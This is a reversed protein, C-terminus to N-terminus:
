SQKANSFDLPTAPLSPSDDGGIVRIILNRFQLNQNQNTKMYEADEKSLSQRLMFHDRWGHKLNRPVKYPSLTIELKGRLPRRGYSIHGEIRPDITVEYVSANFIDFGVIIFSEEEPNNLYLGSNGFKYGEVLVLQSLMRRDERAIGHLWVEDCGGVEAMQRQIRGLTVILIYLTIAGAVVLGAILPGIKYFPLAHIWASHASYWTLMVAGASVALFVIFRLAISEIARQSFSKEPM